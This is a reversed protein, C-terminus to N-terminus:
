FLYILPLRRAKPNHSSNKEFKVVEEKNFVKQQHVTHMTCYKYGAFILDCIFRPEKLSRKPIKKYKETSAAWSKSGPSNMSVKNAIEMLMPQDPVLLAVTHIRSPDGYVCINEVLPHIKLLSEV